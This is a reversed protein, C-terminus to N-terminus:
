FLSYGQIAVKLEVSLRLLYVWILTLLLPLSWSTLWGFFRNRKAGGGTLGPIDMANDCNLQRITDWKKELTRISNTAAYISITGIVGVLIGVVSIINLFRDVQVLTDKAFAPWASIPTDMASLVELKKQLTLGYTAVLFSQILYMWNSRYNILNDEHVVYDRYSKYLARIESSSYKLPM